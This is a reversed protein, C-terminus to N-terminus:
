ANPASPDPSTEGGVVARRKRRSWLLAVLLLGGLVILNAAILLRHSRGGEGRPEEPEPLGFASLCFQNEGASELLKLEYEAVHEWRADASLRGAELQEVTEQLDGVDPLREEETWSWVVQRCRRPVPLHPAVEQYEGVTHVIAAEGPVRYRGFFCGEVVVCFLRPDLLLVGRDIAFQADAQPQARFSVRLFRGNGEISGLEIVQLEGSEAMELLNKRQGYTVPLIGRSLATMVMEAATRGGPGKADPNSQNLWLVRWEDEKTMAARSLAFAYRSNRGVVRDSKNAPWAEIAHQERVDLCWVAWPPKFRFDIISRQHLQDRILTKSHLRGAVAVQSLHERYERWAKLLTENGIPLSGTREAAITWDLFGIALVAAALVCKRGWRALWRNMKM